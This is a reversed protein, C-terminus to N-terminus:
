HLVSLPVFDKIDQSEKKGLHLTLFRTKRSGSRHLVTHEPCRTFQFFGCAKQSFGSVKKKFFTMKSKGFIVCHKCEKMRKKPKTACTHQQQCDQKHIIGAINKTPPTANIVIFLQKFFTMAFLRALAYGQRFNEQKLVM